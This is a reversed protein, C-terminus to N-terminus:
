SERVPAMEENKDLAQLGDTAGYLCALKTAKFGLEM